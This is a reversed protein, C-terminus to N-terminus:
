AFAEAGANLAYRSDGGPGQRRQRRMQGPSVGFHATFRHHFAAESRYGVQASVDAIKLDTKSLIEAAHRMRVETLADMPTKGTQQVFHAAFNSRGMGVKRALIEVTWKQFPHMEMFQGARAIPDLLNSQNFLLKCGPDDRFASVFMLTALRTLLASGGGSQAEAVLRDLKVLSHESSKKLLAPMGRPRHGAPWRVRLRGCLLRAVVPGDGLMITPPVDVYDSTRLLPVSHIAVSGKPRLTHAEGSLTLVIDGATLDVIEGGVGALRLDGELLAYFFVADAHPSRMAHGAGIDVFCWSQSRLEFINLFESLSWSMM